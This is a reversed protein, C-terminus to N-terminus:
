LTALLFSAGFSCAPVRLSPLAPAWYCALQTICLCAYISETQLRANCGAIASMDSAILLRRNSLVAAKPLGTTGSTYIYLATEGITTEGDASIDESAEAINTM